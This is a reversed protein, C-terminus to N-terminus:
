GLDRGTAIQNIFIAHGGMEKVIKRDYMKKPRKCLEMFCAIAEELENCDFELHVIDALEGRSNEETETVIFHFPGSKTERLKHICVMIPDEAWVHAEGGLEPDGAGRGVLAFEIKATTFPVTKGFTNTLRIKTM